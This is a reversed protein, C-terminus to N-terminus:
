SHPQAALRQRARKRLWDRCPREFVYHLLAAVTIAAIVQAWMPWTRNLVQRLLIHSLYLAYSIDGLFVALRNGILADGIRSELYIGVIMLAAALSVM